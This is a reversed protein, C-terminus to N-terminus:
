MNNRRTSPNAKQHAQSLLSIFRLSWRNWNVFSISLPAIIPLYESYGAGKMGYFVHYLVAEDIGNGTFYDALLYLSTLLLFSFTTFSVLFRTKHSRVIFGSFSLGVLFLIISFYLM